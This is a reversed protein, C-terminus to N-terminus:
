CAILQLQVTEQFKASHGQVGPVFECNAKNVIFQNEILPTTRQVAYVNTDLVGMDILGQFQEKLDLVLKIFENHRRLMLKNFADATMINEDSRETDYQAFVYIEYRLGVLSSHPTGSIDRFDQLYFSCFLIHGLELDSQTEYSVSEITAWYDEKDNFYIPSPVVRGGAPMVPTIMSLGLYKRTLLEDDSLAM